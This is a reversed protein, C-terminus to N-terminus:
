ARVGKSFRIVVGGVEMVQARWGDAKLLMQVDLCEEPVVAGLGFNREYQGFAAVLQRGIGQRRSSPKVVLRHITVPNAADSRRAILYGVPKGESHAILGFFGLRRLEWAIEKQSVPGLPDGDGTEFTAAEIEAAMFAMSAPLVEIITPPAATPRDRPAVARAIHHFISPRAPRNM